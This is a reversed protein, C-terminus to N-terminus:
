DTWGCVASSMGAKGKPEMSAGGQFGSETSYNFRWSINNQAGNYMGLMYQHDQGLTLNEEGSNQVPKNIGPVTTTNSTWNTRRFNNGGNYSGQNGAYGFNWKSQVSKQQHHASPATGGRSAITRTAFTWSNASETTYFLGYNEHSMGWIDGSIYTPTLTGVLTKTTMNYEEIRANDGGSIWAFYHEQFVGGFLWRTGALTRSIDTAQQETRMNYAITYNSVTSHANGAGFVYSYDKSCAGWQYNHSREISGDGLNVTTDTATFTKNVNNWAVVDKYGGQTYATTIITRFPFSVTSNEWEIGNFFELTGSESNIRVSGTTGSRQASSGVPLRLFGTDNITTSQLTAM